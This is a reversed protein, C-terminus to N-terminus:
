EVYERVVGERFEYFIYSTIRELAQPTSRAQPAILVRSPSLIWVDFSSGDAFDAINAHYYPNGHFVAISSDPFKIMTRGFRRIEEIDSFVDVDYQIELPPSPHYDRERIGRKQYLELRDSAYGELVSIIHDEIESFLFDSSVGGFKGIKGTAVTSYFHQQKGIKRQIAFTLSTFWQNKELAEEFMEDISQDRWVRDTNFQSKGQNQGTNRKAKLTGDMIHLRFNDGNNNELVKLAEHIENQKFFVRMAEPYSRRLLKQVVNAWFSSKSVTVARYMNPYKGPIFALLGEIIEADNKPITRASFLWPMSNYSNVEFKATRCIKDIVTSFDGKHYLICERLQIHEDFKKFMPLIGFFNAPSPLNSVWSEFEQIPDYKQAASRAM